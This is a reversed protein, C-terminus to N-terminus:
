SSGISFGHSFRWITITAAITILAGDHQNLPPVQEPAKDSARYALLPPCYDVGDSIADAPPAAPEARRAPRPKARVDLVTGRGAAADEVAAKCPLADAPIPRAARGPTARQRGPKGRPQAHSRV